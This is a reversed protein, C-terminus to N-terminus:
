NQVKLKVVTAVSDCREVSISINATKATPEILYTHCPAKGRNDKTFKINGFYLLSQVATSDIDQQNMIERVEKTYVFHPKNRISKLTRANPGYEFTANKKDYFRGLLYIGIALGILFFGLRKFFSTNLKM